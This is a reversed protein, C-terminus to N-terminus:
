QLNSKYTSVINKFKYYSRAQKLHNLFSKYRKDKGKMLGTISYIILLIVTMMWCFYMFLLPLFTILDGFWMNPSFCCIVVIYLLLPELIIRLYRYDYLYIWFLSATELHVPQIYGNNSEIYSKDVNIYVYSWKQRYFSVSKFDNYGLYIPRSPSIDVLKHKKNDYICCRKDSTIKITDLNNSIFEYNIHTNNIYHGNEHLVLLEEIHTSYCLINNDVFFALKGSFIRKVRELIDSFMFNKERESKEIWFSLTAANEIFFVYKHWCDQHKVVEWSLGESFGLVVFVIKCHQILKDVWKKWNTTPLFYTEYDDTGFIVRPNGVKVIKYNNIDAFNRISRICYRDIGTEDVVFSRLYLISYSRKIHLLTQKTSYHFRMIKILLFFSSIGYSFSIYAGLYGYYACKNEVYDGGAFIFVFVLTLTLFTLAFLFYSLNKILSWMYRFIIILRFLTTKCLLKLLFYLTSLLAIVGGWTLLLTYLYDNKTRLFLLLFGVIIGISCYLYWAITTVKSFAGIIQSGKQELYTEFFSTEYFLFIQFLLSFFCIITYKIDVDWRIAESNVIFCIMLTSFIFAYWTRHSKIYKLLEVTYHFIFNANLM